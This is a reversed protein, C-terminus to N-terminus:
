HNNLLDLVKDLKSELRRLDEKIDRIEVQHVVMKLDILKEIDEKASTKEVKTKMSMKDKENYGIYCLLAPVLFYKLLDLLEM